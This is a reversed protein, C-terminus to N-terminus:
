KENGQTRRSGFAVPHLIGKNDKGMFDFGNGSMFQAVMAMLINNNAPQCDDYGFGRASFDMCLVTLKRNNFRRLCSNCLISQKLEDFTTQAEDTWSKGGPKTYKSNSM